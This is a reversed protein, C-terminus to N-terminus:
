KQGKNHGDKSSIFTGKINGFRKFLERTKGKRNNEEMEKNMLSPKRTDGQQERSSQM